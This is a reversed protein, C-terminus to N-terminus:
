PKSNNYVIQFNQMYQAAIEPSHIILINEDNSREANASFNYSGTIVVREDIIIVKHHMLGSIGDLRVDFGDQQFPEFEGGRNSRVQSEDFVGRLLVGNAARDRMAAAIDDSTFSYAMFHISTQAQSVADVIRGAVGDDPSFYVEVPIGNVTVQPYPTNARGAPGFLNEVFLENFEVQYNTVVRQSRVRVLNNFDRNNSAATFNMSGTWVERKDIIVFKHHMLGSRQDGQIPIGAEALRQPQRGEMAESEMVLRVSVGRRDAAILADALEPLSLNYVAVDVTLEAGDVAAVLLAAPGAGERGTLPDTFFVQITEGGGAAPDLTPLPTALPTAAPVPLGPFQLEGEQWMEYVTFAFVLLIIVIVAPTSLQTTTRRSRSTSRTSSAKKSKPPM